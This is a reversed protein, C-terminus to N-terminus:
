RGWGAADATGGAKRGVVRFASGYDVCGLGLLLLQMLTRRRWTWQRPGPTPLLRHLRWALRGRRDTPPTRMGERAMLADVMDRAYMPFAGFPEVGRTRYWRLLVSLSLCERYLVGYKDYLRGDYAAAVGERYFTKDRRWDFLRRAWRVRADPDQGAILDLANCQLNYVFHGYPNYVFTALLGGPATWRCLNDFARPMDPTHHICGLSSVYDFSGDAFHTVELVSALRFEVNGLGARAASARAVELSGASTDIGVVRAPGLSALFLTEEGTGCGADLVTRDRLFTDCDLGMRAYVFRRHRVYRANADPDLGPYRVRSYMARTREAREDGGGPGAAQDADAM